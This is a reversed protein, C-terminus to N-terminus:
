IISSIYKFIKEEQPTNPIIVVSNYDFHNQIKYNNSTIMRGLNYISNETLSDVLKNIEESSCYYGLNLMYEEYTQNEYAEDEISTSVIHKLNSLDSIKNNKIVFVHYHKFAYPVSTPKNSFLYFYNKSSEIKNFFNITNEEDLLNDFDDIIIHNPEKTESLLNILAFLLNKASSAALNEESFYVEFLNDILYDVNKISIKANIVIDNISRIKETEQKIFTNLSNFMGNIENILDPENENIYNLIRAHYYKKFYSKSNIKLHEMISEKSSIYFINKEGKLINLGNELFNKDKGELGSLLVKSLYTKGSNSHGYFVNIKGINIKNKNSFFKFCYTM